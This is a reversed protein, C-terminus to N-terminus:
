VARRRRILRQRVPARYVRDTRYRDRAKAQDRPEAQRRAHSAGLLAPGPCDMSTAKQGVVADLDRVVEAWSTLWGGVIKEICATTAQVRMAPGGARSVDAWARRLVLLPPTGIAIQAQVKMQRAERGTGSGSCWGAASSLCPAIGEADAAARGTARSDVGQRPSIVTRLTVATTHIAKGM